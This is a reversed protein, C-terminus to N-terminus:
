KYTRAGGSVGRSSDDFYAWKFLYTHLKGANAGASIALM